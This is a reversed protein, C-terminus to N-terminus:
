GNPSTAASAMLAPTHEGARPAREIVMLLPISLLLPALLAFYSYSTWPVALFAVMTLLIGGIAATTLRRYTALVVPVAVAAIIALGIVQATEIEPVALGQHDALVWINWGFLDQHFGAFATLASLYATPDLILFAVSAAILVAVTGLAYDLFGRVGARRWVWCAIAVVVFVCTQKMGLALGAALGALRVSGVSFGRREAYLAVLAAGLLVAGSSTDNSADLTLNILDPLLGLLVIAPLAMLWGFRNGLAALVAAVALWSAIETARVGDYGSLLYGPLHVLFQIPPYPAPSGPPSSSTFLHQYRNQGALITALWETVVALVDSRGVVDFDAWRLVLGVAITYLVIM